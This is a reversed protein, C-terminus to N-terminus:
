VNGVRNEIVICAVLTALIQSTSVIVWISYSASCNQWHSIGLPPSASGKPIIKSIERQTKNNNDFYKLSM